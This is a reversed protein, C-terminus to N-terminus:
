DRPEYTVEYSKLQSDLHKNNLHCLVQVAKNMVHKYGIHYAMSEKDTQDDTTFWEIRQEMDSPYDEDFDFSEITNKNDMLIAKILRNKKDSVIM